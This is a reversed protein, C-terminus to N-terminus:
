SKTYKKGNALSENFKKIEIKRSEKIANNNNSTTDERIGSDNKLQINKFIDETLQHIIEENQKENKGEEVQDDVTDNTNETTSNEENETTGELAM